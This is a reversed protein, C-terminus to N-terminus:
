QYNQLTTNDLSQDQEKLNHTLIGNAVYLDNEEVDLKYVIFQGTMVIINNIIVEKGNEDVLSDGAELDVTKSIKWINNHKCVHNHDWSTFLKGDNISYVTNVTQSRNGVVTVMDDTVEIKNSNWKYLSDLEENVPMTNISKSYLTDGILVDQVMKVTGDSMKIKTGFLVCGGGSGGGSSGGSSGGSPPPATYSCSSATGLAGTFSSNCKRSVISDSYYYASNAYNIVGTGDSVSNSIYLNTIGSTGSFTKSIASSVEYYGYIFYNEACAGSAYTDYSLGSLYNVYDETFVAGEFATGNWYRRSGGDRYWGATALSTGSANTYLSTAASLATSNIYYTSKTRSSFTGNLSSSTASTNYALQISTYSPCADRSSFAVTSYNWYRVIGNSHYYGSPAYDTGASNYLKNGNTTWYNGDNWATTFNSKYSAATASCAAAITAANYSLSVTELVITSQSESTNWKFGDQGLYCLYILGNKGDEYDFTNVGPGEYVHELPEGADIYSEIVDTSADVGNSFEYTGATVTQTAKFGIVASGQIQKNPTSQNINGNAVIEAQMLDGFVDYDVNLDFGCLNPLEYSVTGKSWTKGNCLYWGEFKTGLKGAGYKFEIVPTISPNDFGSVNGKNVVTGSEELHFFADIFEDQTIIISGVPFGGIVDYANGWLVTGSGAGSHTFAVKGPGPISYITPGFKHNIPTGSDTTAKFTATYGFWSVMDPGLLFKTADLELHKKLNLATTPSFVGSGNNTYEPTQFIFKNSSFNTRGGTTNRFGSEFIPSILSPNNIDYPRYLNWFYVKRTNIDVNSGDIDSSTFVGNFITSSNRTNWRNISGTSSTHATASSYAAHMNSYGVKVDYPDDKIQKILIATNTEGTTYNEIWDNEGSFGQNGRNGVPGQRGNTGQAGDAGIRGSKGLWGQPGLPGGGAELIRDFNWNLKEVKKSSWWLSIDVPDLDSKYLEKIDLSM